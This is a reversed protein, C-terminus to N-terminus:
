RRYKLYNQYGVKRGSGDGLYALHMCDTGSNWDGGWYFGYSKFISVIPCDEYLVHYKTHTEPLDKWISYPMKKNGYDNGYTTGNILYSGTSPNIDIAGGLAHASLTRYDSHGKGRLVWTGMGADNINIIPKSKDSYIDNFIDKFVPALKDHVTFKITKTVKSMDEPDAPNKWFWVKVEIQTAHNNYVNKLIDKVDKFPVDPYETLQGDTLYSWAQSDNMGIVSVDDKTIVSDASISWKAYNKLEKGDDEIYEGNYNDPYVVIDESQEDSYSVVEFVADYNGTDTYVKGSKVDVQKVDTETSITASSNTSTTVIICIAIAISTLITIMHWRKM